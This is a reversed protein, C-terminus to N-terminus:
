EWHQELRIKPQLNLNTSNSTLKCSGNEYNTM